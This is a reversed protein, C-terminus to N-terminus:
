SGGARRYANVLDAVGGMLGVLRAAQAKVTADEHDLLAALAIVDEKSLLPGSCRVAQVLNALAAQLVALTSDKNIVARALAQQSPADAAAGLLACAGLRVDEPGTGLIMALHPVAASLPFVPHTPGIARLAAVARRALHHAEAAPLPRGWAEEIASVALDRLATAGATEVVASVHPYRRGLTEALGQREVESRALLVVPVSRTRPDTRMRRVFEETTPNTFGARVLVLELAPSNVVFEWGRASDTAEGVRFGADGFTSRALNLLTLEPTIAVIQRPIVQTMAQGLMPVIAAAGDFPARPDAGAILLAAEYAVRRDPASMAALFVPEIRVSRAQASLNLGQLFGLAARYDKRDLASRLGPLLRRDGLVSALLRLDGELAAPSWGGEPRAQAEWWQGLKVLYWVPYAAETTPWEALLRLVTREAMMPGYQTRPVETYILKSKATDWTWVPLTESAGPLITWTEGFHYALVLELTYDVAPKASWTRRGLITRLALEVSVRASTGLSPDEALRKLAHLALRSNMQGLADALAGQVTSSPCRLGEIMAPAADEPLHTLATMVPAHLRQQAPDQLTEMLYPVGYPGCIRLNEEARRVHETGLLQVMEKIYAPNTRQAQLGESALRLLERVPTGCKPEDVLRALFDIGVAQRLGLAEAPTPNSAVIKEFLAAAEDFRGVKALYVANELLAANSGSVAPEAPAPTSVGGSSAPGAGALVAGALAMTAVWGCRASWGPSKRGM